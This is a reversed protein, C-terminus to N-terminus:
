VGIGFILSNKGLGKVPYVTYIDLKSVEFYTCLPALIVGFTFAIGDLIMNCIFSVACVVWGWGGDPPSPLVPHDPEENQTDM